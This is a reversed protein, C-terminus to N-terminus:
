VLALLREVVAPRAAITEMEWGRAVELRQRFGDADLELSRLARRVTEPDIPDSPANVLPVALGLEQCRRALSPQDSFFPCSLLPVGYWIAEHTSNLGQHTVLADVEQLVARQDLWSHVRAGVTELVTATETSLSYGGTSILLECGSEALGAALGRLRAEVLAPHYRWVVTGFSVLVRRLRRDSGVRRPVSPSDLMARCLSGFFALPQFAQRDGAELFQPPEAYLNLVESIGDVFSFPSADPLDYEDRLAAVARHCAASTRAQPDAALDRLFRSPVMAHGACLNVAPLSLDRAILRAIIAFTDYVLLDPRLAAIRRRVASFRQVAFTVFRSARPISEGDVSELPGEAFLDHFRAGFGAVSRAFEVGTFVHVHCGRAVLAEIVPLTRQVHGQQSMCVLVVCLPSSRM